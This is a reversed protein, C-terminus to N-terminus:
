QRTKTWNMAAIAIQTRGAELTWDTQSWATYRQKGRRAMRAHPDGSPRDYGVGLGVVLCTSANGELYHEVGTWLPM